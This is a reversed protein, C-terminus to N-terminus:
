PLEVDKRALRGMMKNYAEGGGHKVKIKDHYSQMESITKSHDGDHKELLKKYVKYAHKIAKKKDMVEGFDPFEKYERMFKHYMKLGKQMNSIDDSTLKKGARPEDMYYNGPFGADKAKKAQKALLPDPSSPAPRYHAKLKCLLDDVVQSHGAGVLREGKKTLKALKLLEYKKFNRRKDPGYSNLIENVLQEKSMSKLVDPDVQHFKDDSDKIKFGKRAIFDVIETKKINKSIYNKVEKRTLKERGRFKEVQQLESPQEQKPGSRKKQKIGKFKVEGDPETVKSELVDVEDRYPGSLGEILEQRKAEKIADKARSINHVKEMYEEVPLAFESEAIRARAMEYDDILEKHSRKEGGHIVRYVAGENKDALYKAREVVKKQLPNMM